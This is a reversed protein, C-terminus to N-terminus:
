VPNGSPTLSSAVLSPHGINYGRATIRISNEANGPFEILFAILIAFTIKPWMSYSGITFLRPAINTLTRQFQIKGRIKDEDLQIKILVKWFLNSNLTWLQERNM